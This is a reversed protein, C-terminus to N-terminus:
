NTMCAVPVIATTTQDNTTESTIRSTTRAITPRGDVLLVLDLAEVNGGMALAAVHQLAAECMFLHPPAPRRRKKM